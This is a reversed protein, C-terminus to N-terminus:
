TGLLLTLGAGACVVGFVTRIWRGQVVSFLGILLGSGLLLTTSVIFGAAYYLAQDDAGAELAHVYGHGCAFLAALGLAWGLPSRRGSLLILGIALVSAAITIEPGEVTIGAFHLSAGATMAALFAAPLWGRAAGGLFGAWMGVGIMALLHDIGLLPHWLGAQFDPAIGHGVHAEAPMSLASLLGAFLTAWHHKM